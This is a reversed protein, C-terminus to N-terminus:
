PAYAGQRRFLDSQIFTGVDYLCVNAEGITRKAKRKPHDYVIEVEAPRSLAYLIAGVGHPKTGVPAVRLLASHGFAEHIAVIQHFLDFPCNAKAYKLRSALRSSEFTTRNGLMAKMPFEARFGPLGIIPSVKSTPIEVSELVHALRAGEFGLIPVFAAEGSSRLRISAFGPLPAIGDIRDSLDFLEGQHPSPHRAYEVPEVYVLKFEVASSVCAKLLPAWTTHSLATVDLYLPAFENVVGAMAASDRIAVSVGDLTSWPAYIEFSDHTQERLEVFRVGGAEAQQRWSAGVVGRDEESPGLLYTSGADPHFDPRRMERTLLLERTLSM